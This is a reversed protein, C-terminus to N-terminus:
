GDARLPEAPFQCRRIVRYALQPRLVLATDRRWRARDRQAPAM